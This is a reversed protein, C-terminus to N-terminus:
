ASKIQMTSEATFHARYLELMETALNVGFEHILVDEGGCNYFAGIEAIFEMPIKNANSFYSIGHGWTSFNDYLKGKSVCDYIGQLRHSFWEFKKREQLRKQTLFERIEKRSINPNNARIQTLWKKNLANNHIYRRENIQQFRYLSIGRTYIRKENKIKKLVGEFEDKENSIYINNRGGVVWDLFHTVEHFFTDKSLKEIECPDMCIYNYDHNFFTGSSTISFDTVKLKTEEAMKSLFELTEPKGTAYAAQVYDKLKKLGEKTESVLTIGNFKESENYLVLAESVMTKAERFKINKDSCAREFLSAAGCRGNFIFIAALVAFESLEVRAMEEAIFEDYTKIAEDLPIGKKIYGEYLEEGYLKTALCYKDLTKIIEKNAYKGIARYIDGLNVSKIIESLDFEEVFSLPLELRAAVNLAKVVTDRQYMTKALIAYLKAVPYKVKNKRAFNKIDIADVVNQRIRDIYTM